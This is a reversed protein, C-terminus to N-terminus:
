VMKNKWWYHVLTETEEYKNNEPIRTQKQSNKTTAMRVSTLHYKM